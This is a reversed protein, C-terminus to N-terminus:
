AKPTEDSKVADDGKVKDGAKELKGAVEGLFGATSELTKSAQQLGIKGLTLGFRLGSQALGEVLSMFPAQGEDAPTAHGHPYSENAQTEPTTTPQTM